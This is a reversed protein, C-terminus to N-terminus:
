MRTFLNHMWPSWGGDEGRLWWEVSISGDPNVRVNGDGDLEYRFRAPGEFTLAGDDVV